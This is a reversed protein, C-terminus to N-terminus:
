FLSVIVMLLMDITLINNSDSKLKECDAKVQEITDLIEKPLAMLITM